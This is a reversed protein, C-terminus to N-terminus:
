TPNSIGLLWMGALVVAVSALVPYIVLLGTILAHGPHGASEKRFAAADFPGPKLAVRGRVNSNAARLLRRLQARKGTKQGSALAQLEMKGSSATKNGTLQKFRKQIRGIDRRGVNRLQRAAEPAMPYSVRATLEQGLSQRHGVFL